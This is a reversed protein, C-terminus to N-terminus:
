VMKIEVTVTGAAAGGTVTITVPGAYEIPQYQAQGVGANNQIEAQPHYTADSAVTVGSLAIDIGDSVTVVPSGSNREVRIASVLGYLTVIASGAGAGDLTIPVPHIGFSM